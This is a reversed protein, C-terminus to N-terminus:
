KWMKFGLHKVDHIATENERFSESGWCFHRCLNSPNHRNTGTIVVLPHWKYMLFLLESQNAIIISRKIFNKKKKTTYKSNVTLRHVDTCITFGSVFLWSQSTSHHPHLTNIPRSSAHNVPLVQNRHHCLPPPPHHSFLLTTTLLAQLPPLHTRSLAGVGWTYRLRGISPGCRGLATWQPLSGETLPCTWWKTSPWWSWPTSSVMTSPKLVPCSFCLHSINLDGFWCFSFIFPTSPLKYM